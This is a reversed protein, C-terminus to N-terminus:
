CVDEFDSHHDLIAEVVYVEADEDEEDQDGDDDAMRSDVPEDKTAQEDKPQAVDGVASEADSDVPLPAPLLILAIIKLPIAVIM